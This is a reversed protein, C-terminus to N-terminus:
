PKKIADAALSLLSLAADGIEVLLSPDGVIEGARFASPQAGARARVRENKERARREEDLRRARALGGSEVFAMVVPLEGADFWTGHLHCVDVVVGSTGGFNKRNMLEGCSPCRIYRVRQSMPNSRQVRRPAAVGYVERQQLLDRLLAHEM